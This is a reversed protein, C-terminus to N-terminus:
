LTTLLILSMDDKVQQIFLTEFIEVKQEDPTPADKFIEELDPQQGANQAEALKKFAKDQFERARKMEAECYEETFGADELMNMLDDYKVVSRADTTRFTELYSQHLTDTM